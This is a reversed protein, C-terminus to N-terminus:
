IPKTSFVAGGCYGLLVNNEVNFQSKCVSIVSKWNIKFVFSVFMFVYYFCNTARKYDFVIGPTTNNCNGRM